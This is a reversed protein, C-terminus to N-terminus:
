SVPKSPTTIQIVTSLPTALSLTARPRVCFHRGKWKEFKSVGIQFSLLDHKTSTLSIIFLLTSQVDSDFV